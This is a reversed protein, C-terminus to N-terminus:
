PKIKNRVKKQIKKVVSKTIAVNSQKFEHNIPNEYLNAILNSGDFQFIMDLPWAYM